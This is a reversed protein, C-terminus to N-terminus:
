SVAVRSVHKEMVTLPCLRTVQRALLRVQVSYTAMVIVHIRVQNSDITVPASWADALWTAPRGPEALEWWRRM